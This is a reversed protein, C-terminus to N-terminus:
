ENLGWDYKNYRIVAKSSIAIDTYSSIFQLVGGSQKFDPKFWQFLKSIELRDQSITNKSEPEILASSNEEEITRTLKAKAATNTDQM